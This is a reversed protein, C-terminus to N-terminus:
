NVQKTLHATGGASVSEVDRYVGSGVRRGGPCRPKRAIVYGFVVCCDCFVLHRPALNDDICGLVGQVSLTANQCLVRLVLHAPWECSRRCVQALFIRRKESKLIQILAASRKAFRRATSAPWPMCSSFGSTSIAAGGFLHQSQNSAVLAAGPVESIWVLCCKPFDASAGEILSRDARVYGFIGQAFLLGKIRNTHKVRENVLTTRERCIRRRDEEEPTPAKVMSCVRPEGRLYAMLTRLLTEGDIKDTKARRRRRSTLISAADVVHSTIGESELVRHIWFGDLGAEQIVIIPFSRGTRAAAKSKLASFREFLAAVDGGERRAQVPIAQAPAIRRVGVARVLRDVVAEDAPAPQTHEVPDEGFQCAFAGLRVPQHDVGGVELRM